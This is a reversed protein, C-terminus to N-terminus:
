NRILVKLKESLSNLDSPFIAILKLNLSDALRLKEETKKDYNEKGKLGFYEVYYENVKWDARRRGHKNYIPHPPYVPEKDAYLNHEFMWNDIYMEDLSNCENGSKSICRFGRSSELVDNPLVSSEVLAKFWSGFKNKFITKTGLSDNGSVGMQFIIKCVDIWNDKKVRSSFSYNVPNFDANPIFNLKQVFQSILEKINAKKPNKTIPCEYCIMDNGNSGYYVWDPLKLPSYENGCIKCEQPKSKELVSKQLKKYAEDNKLRTLSIKLFDYKVKDLSVKRSFSKGYYERCENILFETNEEDIFSNNIRHRFKAALFKEFFIGHKSILNEFLEVDTNKHFQNFVEDGYKSKSLDVYHTQIGVYNKEITPNLYNPFNFDRNNYYTLELFKKM